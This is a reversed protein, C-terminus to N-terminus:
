YKNEKTLSKLANYLAFQNNYINEKKIPLVDRSSIYYDGDIIAWGFDILSINRDKDVVINDIKIDRHIINCEELANVINVVQLEWSAPLNNKNVIDGNNTMVFSGGDLASVIKPFHKYKELRKLCKIEIALLDLPDFKYGGRSFVEGPEKLIFSSGIYSIKNIRSNKKKFFKFM